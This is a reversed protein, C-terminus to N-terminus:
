CTGTKRKSAVAVMAMKRGCQKCILDLYGNIPHYVVNIFNGHKSCNLYVPGHIKGCNTCVAEKDLDEQYLLKSM